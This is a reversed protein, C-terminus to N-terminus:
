FDSRACKAGFIPVCISRLDALKSNRGGDKAAYLLKDARGFVAGLFEGPNPRADRGASFTVAGLPEDSERLRYRKARWLRAPATGLTERAQPSTSTRQFCCPSNRAAMALSSIATSVGHETGRRDGEAGPRRGLPRVSRQRAQLPRCRVGGPVITAGANSLNAIPKRSPVAIRCTPLRTAGRMTAPRRSSPACSTRGRQTAAALRAEASQVRNSCSARSGSSMDEASDIRPTDRGCERCPRPRFRGDGRSDLRVMDSFGEVQMQTQAVLGDVPNPTAGVADADRLRLRGIQGGLTEIDRASLRIGGETLANGRLARADGQPIVCWATRLPIISRTRASGTCHLSVGPCLDFVHEARNEVAVLRASGKSGGDTGLPGKVHWMGRTIARAVTPSLSSLALVALIGIVPHTVFIASRM